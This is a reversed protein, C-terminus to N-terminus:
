STFSPRAAVACVYFNIITGLGRRKYQTGYRGSIQIHSDRLHIEMAQLIIDLAALPNHYTEPRIIGYLDNLIGQMM